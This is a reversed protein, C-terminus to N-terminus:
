KIEDVLLGAPGVVVLRVDDRKRLGQLNLRHRWIAVIVTVKAMGM